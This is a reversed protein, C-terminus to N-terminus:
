ASSGPLSIRTELFARNYYRYDFNFGESLVKFNKDDLNTDIWGRVMCGDIFSRIINYHDERCGLYYEQNDGKKKIDIACGGGCITSIDCTACIPNESIPNFYRSRTKWSSPDFVSMEEFGKQGDMWNCARMVGDPDINFSTGKTPNCFGQYPYNDFVVKGNRVVHAERIVQPGLVHALYGTLKKGELRLIPLFCQYETRSFIDCLALILADETGKSGKTSINGFSQIINTMLVLDGDRWKTQNKVFDLFQPYTTINNVGFNTKVLVPVGEELLSTINSVITQWTGNGGKFPRLNNHEQELGDLTINLEQLNYQQYEKIMVIDEKQITAGSTVAAWCWQNKRVIELIEYWFPRFKTQFPEGGFLQICIGENSLGNEKQYWYIFNEIEKVSGKQLLKKEKGDADKQFCYVCSLPCGKSQTDPTVFFTTQRKKKFTEAFASIASLREQYNSKTLFFGLQKLTTWEIESCSNPTCQVLGSPHRGVEGKLLKYDCGCSPITDIAIPKEVWSLGLKQWWDNNVLLMAGTLPNLILSRTESIKQIM